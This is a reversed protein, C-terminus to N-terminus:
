TIDQLRLTLSTGGGCDLQASGFGMANRAFGMVLTCCRDCVRQHNGGKEGIACAAEFILNDHSVMVAKPNGTTGSTFVLAACNGPASLPPPPSHLLYFPTPTGPKVEAAFADLVADGSDLQRGRQLLFDWTMCAVKSGAAGEVFEVPSADGWLVIAKLCPLHKAIKRFKEFAQVTDVVAVSADSLLSKFQIQEPTDTPYIGAAKGGFYMAALEAMFWEPSNHGLIAIGDYRLSGVSLFGKAAARVDDHYQQWTWTKWQALPASDPSSPV